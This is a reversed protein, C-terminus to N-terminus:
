FHNKWDRLAAFVSVPDSLPKGAYVSANRIIEPQDCRLFPNTAREIAISSPLTPINQKRLAEVVTERKILAQNGPEVTRAFRINNLTYEQRMSGPKKPLDALKQLSNVMKRLPERLCGDAAAPLCLIGVFLLNQAM